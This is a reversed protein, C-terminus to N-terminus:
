PGPRYIEVRGERGSTIAITVWLRMLRDESQWVM